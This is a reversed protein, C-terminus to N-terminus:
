EAWGAETLDKWNRYAANMSYGLLKSAGYATDTLKLFKRTAIDARLNTGYLLKNQLWSNM